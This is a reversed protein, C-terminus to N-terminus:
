IVQVLLDRPICDHVHIGRKKVMMFLDFPPRRGTCCTRNTTRIAEARMNFLIRGDLKALCREHPVVRSHLVRNIGIGALVAARLKDGAGSLAIVAPMM